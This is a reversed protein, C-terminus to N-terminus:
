YGEKVWRNALHEASSYHKRGGDGPRIKCGCVKCKTNRGHWTPYGKRALMRDLRIIEKDVPVPAGAPRGSYTEESYSESKSSGWIENFGWYEDYTMTSYQTDLGAYGTSQEASENHTPSVVSHLPLSPIIAKRSKGSRSQARGTTPKTRIEIFSSMIHTSAIHNNLDVYNSCVMNCIKCMKRGCDNNKMTNLHSIPARDDQLSPNYDDCDISAILDAM